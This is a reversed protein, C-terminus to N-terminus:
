TAAMYDATRNETRKLGEDRRGPLADVFEASRENFYSGPLCDLKVPHNIFEFSIDHFFRKYKGAQQRHAGHGTKGLGWGICLTGPPNRLSIGSIGLGMRCCRYIVAHGRDTVAFLVMGVALCNFFYRLLAAKLQFVARVRRARDILNQEGFSGRRDRCLM